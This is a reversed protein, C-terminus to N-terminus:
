GLIVLADASKATGIRRSDAHPVMVLGLARALSKPGLNVNAGSDVMALSSTSTEALSEKLKQMMGAGIFFQEDDEGIKM